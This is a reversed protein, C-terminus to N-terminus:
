CWRYLDGIRELLLYDLDFRLSELCTRIRTRLCRVSGFCFPRGTIGVLEQFYVGLQFRYFGQTWQYFVGIGVGLLLVSFLLILMSIWRSATFVSNPTPTAGLIEHFRSDRDRWVLVGTFYTILALPLILLSGSVQEVVNYTVPFSSSGFLAASGLALSFGVNILTFGLIIIFTKSFIM